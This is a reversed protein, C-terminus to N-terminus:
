QCRPRPPTKGEPRGRPCAGREQGQRLDRALRAFGAKIEDVTMCQDYADEVMERIIGAIREAAEPDMGLRQSQQALRLTDIVLKGM